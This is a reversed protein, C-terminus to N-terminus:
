KICSAPLAEPGQDCNILSRKGSWGDGDPSMLEFDGKARRNDGFSEPLHTEAYAHRGALPTSAQAIHVVLLKICTTTRHGGYNPEIKSSDSNWM